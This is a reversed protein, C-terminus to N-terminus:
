RRNKWDGFTRQADAETILQAFRMTEEWLASCKECQYLFVPGESQAVQKMPAACGRLVAQHCQECGNTNTEPM